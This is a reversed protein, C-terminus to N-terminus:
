HMSCYRIDMIMLMLLGNDFVNNSPGKSSEGLVWDEDDEDRVILTTIQKTDLLPWTADFRYIASCLDGHGYKKAYDYASFGQQDKCMFSSVHCSVILRKLMHVRMQVQKEYFVKDDIDELRVCKRIFPELTLVGGDFDASLAKGAVYHLANAGCSSQIKVDVVNDILVGFVDAWGFACALHLPTIGLGYTAQNVNASYREVLLKVLDVNDRYAAYHL